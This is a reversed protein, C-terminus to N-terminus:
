EARKIEKQTRASMFKCPQMLSQLGLSMRM